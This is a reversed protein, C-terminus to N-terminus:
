YRMARSSLQRLQPTQESAAVDTLQPRRQEGAARGATGAAILDELLLQNAGGDAALHSLAWVMHLCTGRHRLVAMRLPWDRHFDFPVLPWTARLQDAYRTVDARQADDPFTLIDLGIQGPGAVEQCP